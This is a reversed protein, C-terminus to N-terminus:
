HLRHMKRGRVIHYLLLTPLLLGAVMHIVSADLSWADDAFYYIGLASLLLFLMLAAMFLGSRHNKRHRWGARMHVSWLAGVVVMMLFSMLAHLAATGIQADGQLRWPVEWELRMELAAPILLLGTGLMALIIALLLQYFWTPYGRLRM